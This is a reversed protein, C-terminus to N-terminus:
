AYVVGKLVTVSSMQEIQERFIEDRLKTLQRYDNQLVSMEANHNEEYADQMATYVIMCYGDIAEYDTEANRVATHAQALLKERTNRDM